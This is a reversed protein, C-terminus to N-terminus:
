NGTQGARALEGSGQKASARHGMGWARSPWHGIVVSKNITVGIAISRQQRDCQRMKEWGLIGANDWVQAVVLIYRRAASLDCM